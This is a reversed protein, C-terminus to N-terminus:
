RSTSPALMVVRVATGVSSSRIELRDTLAHMLHLGLGHEFELRRPDDPAPLRPAAAPDFGGGHDSIVVEVWRRDVACRIAIADQVGRAEHANIANSCAESVAVELNSLQEPQLTTDVNAVAAVFRRAVALYDRRPPIELEVVRVDALGNV